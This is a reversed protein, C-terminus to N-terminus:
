RVVKVNFHGTGLAGMLRLWMPLLMETGRATEIGGLDIVDDHGFSEGVGFRGAGGLQGGTAQDGRGRKARSVSSDVGAGCERSCCSPSTRRM